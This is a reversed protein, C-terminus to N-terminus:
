DAEAAWHQLLVLHQPMRSRKPSRLLLCLLLLSLLSSAMQSVLLFVSFWGPLLSCSPLVHRWLLGM